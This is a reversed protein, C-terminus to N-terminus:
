SKPKVYVILAETGSAPPRAGGGVFQIISETKEIRYKQSIEKLGALLDKAPNKDDQPERVVLIEDAVLTELVYRNSRPSEQASAGGLIGISVTALVGGAAGLVLKKM